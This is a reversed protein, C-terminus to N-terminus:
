STRQSRTYRSGEAYTWHSRLLHIKKWLFYIIFDIGIEGVSVLIPSDERIRHKRARSRGRSAAMECRPCAAILLCVNRCTLRVFVSKPLRTLILGPNDGGYQFHCFHSVTSWAFGVYLVNVGKHMGRVAFIDLVDPLNSATRRINNLCNQSGTVLAM